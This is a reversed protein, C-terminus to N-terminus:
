MEAIAIKNFYCMAKANKLCPRAYGFIPDPAPAYRLIDEGKDSLVFKPGGDWKDLKPKRMRVLILIAFVILLIGLLM